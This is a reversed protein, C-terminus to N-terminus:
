GRALRAMVADLVATPVLKETWWVFRADLGVRYRDRPRASTLAREIARAVREPPIGRSRSTDIFRDMGSTRREYLARSAEPLANLLEARDRGAKDWIPTAISGPQILVARMGSGLLERRLADTWAEVAHKSASYPGLYPASMYGGISSVNMVRGRARRIAPLHARTVSVLGVVNVELQHRLADLDQFEAIGAVAIGANNVLGQLGAAGVEADVRKASAEIQSPDTVDLRLPLLEGSAEASLAEGDSEKRVGAFVRFGAACLHLATARGIGTSAGTVVVAGRTAM